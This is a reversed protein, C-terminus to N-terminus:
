VGISVQCQGLQKLAHVQRLRAQQEAAAAAAGPQQGVLDLAMDCDRLAYAADGEWGRNLYALARQAYLGAACPAAAIAATFDAVAASYRQEFLANNGSVKSAEATEPLNCIAALDAAGQDLTKDAATIQTIQDGSPLGINGSRVQQDNIPFRPSRSGSRSRQQQQQGCLAIPAGEAAGTVDFIYAHDGHYSTVLKDGRNSFSVHTTHARRNIGAKLLLPLHPCTLQLLPQSPRGGPRSTALKRRDFVRVYPDGCAVAMLHPQLHNVDVGKCEVLQQHPGAATLNILVNPSGYAKQDPVRLDYQRIIGDEGASWFM